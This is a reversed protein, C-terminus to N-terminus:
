YFVSETGYKELVRYNVLHKRILSTFYIYQMYKAFNHRFGKEFLTPVNTLYM